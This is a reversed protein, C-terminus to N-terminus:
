ADSGLLAKKGKAKIQGQYSSLLINSQVNYVSTM